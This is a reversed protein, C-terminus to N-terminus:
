NTTFPDQVCASTTRANPMLAILMFRYTFFNRAPPALAKKASRRRRRGGTSVGSTTVCACVSNASPCARAATAFVSASFGSVNLL